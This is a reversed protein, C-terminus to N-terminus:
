VSPSHATPLRLELVPGSGQISTQVIQGGLQAALSQLMWSGTCRSARRYVPTANRCRALLREILNSPGCWKRSDSITICAWGDRWGTRIELIGPCTHAQSVDLLLNLVLQRTLPANCILRPLEGYSVDLHVEPPLMRRAIGLLAGLVDNM